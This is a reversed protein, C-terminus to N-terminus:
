FVNDFKFWVQFGEHSFGTDIRLIVNNRANVRFGFGVSSQLDRLNIRNTQPFVKGADTFIAMDLGSFVEWRYEATFALLNNDYFRFRRFGRGLESGGLTPQMYFPVQHGHASQTLVGRARLAIVRRENFLPLYQQADMDYRHFTYASYRQDRSYRYQVLYNGGYRPGEPNDRYDYQLFAGSFLYHAQRDIGPAQVPTFKLESSIYRPDRGAGVNIQQFGGLFGTKWNRHAQLGFTAEASVDEFTFSSRDSRLSDPGRGYYDVRPAYRRTASLGVFARNDWLRPFRVGADFLYFHRLSGRASTRFIANRSLTSREFEPGLAFGSGTMLGGFRVRFGEVFGFTRALINRERLKQLFGEGSTLTDPQLSATKRDRDAEIIETRSQPQAFALSVSLFLGFVRL